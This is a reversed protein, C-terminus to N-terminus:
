AKAIGIEVWDAIVKAADELAITQHNDASYECSLDWEYVTDDAVAADGEDVGSGLEFSMSLQDDSVDFSISCMDLGTACAYVFAEEAAMRADEVEEVSMSCLVALNAAMMRVSRAFAPQAPVGLSVHSEIM